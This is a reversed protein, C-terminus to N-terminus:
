HLRGRWTAALDRLAGGLSAHDRRRAPRGGSADELVYARKNRGNQRVTLTRDNFRLRAGFALPRRAM